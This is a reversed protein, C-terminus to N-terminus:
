GATTPCATLKDGFDAFDIQLVGSATVAQGITTRAHLTIKAFMTIVGNSPGDGGILSILPPETKAQRRVVEINVTTAQEAIVEAAINGSITYPVDVGQAGRGDSRSYQVEYRDIVLDGRFDLTGVRPNKAHNEVRVPVVDPCIFSLSPTAGEGDRVDSDLQNGGNIATILLLNPADGNNAYNPNLNCSIMALGGLAVLVFVPFGKM